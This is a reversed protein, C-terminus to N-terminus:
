VLALLCGPSLHGCFKPPSESIESRIGMIDRMVRRLHIARDFALGAFPNEQDTMRKARLGFEVLCRIAARQATM